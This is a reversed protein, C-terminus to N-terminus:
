FIDVMLDKNADTKVESFSSYIDNRFDGDRSLIGSIEVLQSVHIWIGRHM